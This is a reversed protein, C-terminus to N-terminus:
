DIGIEKQISETVEQPLGSADIELVTGGSARITEVAFIDERISRDIKGVYEAPDGEGRMDQRKYSQEVPNEPFSLYVFDLKWNHVYAFDHLKGVQEPSRPFGDLIIHENPSESVTELFEGDLDKLLEGKERRKDNDDSADEGKEKKEKAYDGLHFRDSNLMNKVERIQTSKGTGPMGLFCIVQKSPEGKERENEEFRKHKKFAEWFKKVRAVRYPSPGRMRTKTRELGSSLMKLCQEIEEETEVKQDPPVIPEGDARRSYFNMEVEQDPSVAPEEESSSNPYFNGREIM